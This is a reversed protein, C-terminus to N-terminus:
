AVKCPSHALRVVHRVVVSQVRMPMRVPMGMRMVMVMRVIMPMVVGMLGTGMVMADPGAVMDKQSLAM